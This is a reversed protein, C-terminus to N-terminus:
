DGIIYGSNRIYNKVQELKTLKEKIFATIEEVRGGEKTVRIQIGYLEDAIRVLCLEKEGDDSHKFVGLVNDGRDICTRVLEAKSGHKEIAHSLEETGVEAETSVDALSPQVVNPTTSPIFLSLDIQNNALLIMGVLALVLLIFIWINSLPAEIADM